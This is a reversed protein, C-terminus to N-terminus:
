SLEPFLKHVLLKLLRLKIYTKGAEAPGEGEGALMRGPLDGPWRSEDTFCM